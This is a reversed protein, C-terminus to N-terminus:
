VLVPFRQNGAYTCLLSRTNNSWYGSLQSMRGYALAVVLVLNLPFDSIINLLVNCELDQTRAGPATFQPESQYQVVGDGLVTRWGLLPM